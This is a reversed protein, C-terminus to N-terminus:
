SAGRLKIFELCANEDMLWYRGITLRVPMGETNDPESLSNALVKGKEAGIVFLFVYKADLIIDATVTIREHPWVPGKSSLVKRGIRRTSGCGPFLSAIHGDTGLGLFVLDIKEPLLKEYEGVASEPNTEGSYMRHVKELSDPTNFYLRNALGFNSEQHDPPVCREDGFYFRLRNFNQLPRARWFEYLLKITNGGTLMISCEEQDQLVIDIHEDIMAAARMAWTASPFCSVKCISSKEVM